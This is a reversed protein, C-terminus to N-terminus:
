EMRFETRPSEPEQEMEAVGGFVFLTIGKMHLGYRRAVLSHCFEHFIISAFLGIAGTIGMWLYTNKSFGEFFYPFASTAFTWTILVALIFWSVDINVSFGFLKFLPIRKGFM